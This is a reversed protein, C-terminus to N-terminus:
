VKKFTYSKEKGKKHFQCFPYIGRKALQTPKHQQIITFKGDKIQIKVFTKDAEGNEDFSTVGGVGTYNIQAVYDRIAARDKSKVNDIAEMMMGAADYAQAALSSPDKGTVAKYADRYEIVLPDTSENVYAVPFVTGEVYEGGLDIVQQNYLNAFAALGINPDIQRFQRAFPVFTNHMGVVIIAEAGAQQFKSVQTSYDDSGDVCEEHAVIEFANDEAVLDKVIQATSVGWDTKISLLGVKKAKLNNKVADVTAAGEVSIITNNRFIYDGAKTFDPHSASASINLLGGEQFTPTAAMSVGSVYSGIIGVIDQDEVVKEAITAAEEGNSKDDYSVIEIKYGGAGGKKNWKEAMLEASVKFSNGYEAHDGTLPAYVAIKITEQPAGSGGAAPPPTSAASSTGGGCGSLVSTVLAM